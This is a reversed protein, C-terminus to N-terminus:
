EPSTNGAHTSSDINTATKVPQELPATSGSFIELKDRVTTVVPALTPCIYRTFVTQAGRADSQSLIAAYVITIEWRLPVPYSGLRITHLPFAVPILCVFFLLWRESSTSFTAADAICAKLPRWLVLFFSVLVAWYPSILM